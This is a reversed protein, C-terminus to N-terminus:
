AGNTNNAFLLSSAFAFISRSTGPLNEDNANHFEVLAKYEM